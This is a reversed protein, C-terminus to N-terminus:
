GASHVANQLQIEEYERKLMSYLVKDSYQGDIYYHERLIGEKVFGLREYMKIADKFVPSTRLYVKHLNLRNFAFGLMLRTAESGYGNQRYKKEYIFISFMANRSVYDIKGLAVNGIHENNEIFCIAFIYRTNDNLLSDYWKEQNVLSKTPLYGMIASMESDNIWKQTTPIDTRELIRLYIREGIM